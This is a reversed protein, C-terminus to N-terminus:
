MEHSYGLVWILNDLKHLGTFRDYMLRWLKKFAEAGGKGWWFWAGDFEHLPRWLVPVDGRFRVAARVRAAQRLAHPSTSTESRACRGYGHVSCRRNHATNHILFYGVSGAARKLYINVARIDHRQVRIKGASIKGRM